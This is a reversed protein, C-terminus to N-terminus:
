RLENQISHDSPPSATLTMANSVLFAHCLRVHLEDQRATDSGLSRTTFSVGDHDVGATCM